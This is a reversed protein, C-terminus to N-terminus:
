LGLTIEKNLVRKAQSTRYRREECKVQLVSHKGLRSLALRLPNAGRKIDRREAVLNRRHVDRRIKKVGTIVGYPGSRLPIEKFQFPRPDTNIM